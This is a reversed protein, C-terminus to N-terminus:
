GVLLGPERSSRCCSPPLGERAHASVLGSLSIAPATVWHQTLGHAVPIIMPFFLIFELVLQTKPLTIPATLEKLAVHSYGYATHIFLFRDEPSALWHPKHHCDFRSGHRGASHFCKFYMCLAATLTEEPTASRSSTLKLAGTSETIERM